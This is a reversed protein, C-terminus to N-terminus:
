QLAPSDNIPPEASTSGNAGFVLDLMDSVTDGYNDFLEVHTGLRGGVREGTLWRPDPQIMLYRHTRSQEDQSTTIYGVVDIYYPLTTALQGQVYPVQRGGDVTRTMAIIVVAELPRTPHTLLDRYGRVLKSMERLLTGWDQTKMIEVGAINDVCRQQIESISDMVVSRFPHQGSNLWEYVRKMVDYERVSVLVTDWTGDYVPVAETLPDWDRKRSKTFRSGAEADLVLRPAPTTDGLWSKGAKPGGHVLISLGRV